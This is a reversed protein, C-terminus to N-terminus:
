RPVTECIKHMIEIGCTYRFFVPVCRHVVNHCAKERGNAVYRCSCM